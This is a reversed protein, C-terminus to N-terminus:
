DEDAHHILIHAMRQSEVYHFLSRMIDTMGNRMASGCESPDLKMSQEIGLEQLDKEQSFLTTFSDVLEQSIEETVDLYSSVINEPLMHLWGDFGFEAIDAKIMGKASTEAKTVSLYSEMWDMVEHATM